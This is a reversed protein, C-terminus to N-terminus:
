LKNTHKRSDTAAGPQGLRSFLAIYKLNIAFTTFIISVAFDKQM